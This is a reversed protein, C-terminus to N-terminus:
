ESLFEELKPFTYFTAHNMDKITVSYVTKTFTQCNFSKNHALRKEIEDLTEFIIHKM